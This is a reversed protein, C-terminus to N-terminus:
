DYAALADPDPICIKRGDLKVLEERELQSLVRSLTEPQISLQSAVLRKTAPLEFQFAACSKCSRLAQGLLYRIIRHSSKKFSLIEITELSNQELGSLQSLLALTLGTNESALSRYLSHPVQLLTCDTVTQASYAHCAEISFLMDEGFNEGPSIVHFVKDQGDQTLRYIKVSGDLVFFLYRAIDGQEFIKTNKGLVLQESNKLLTHLQAPALTRLLPNDQLPGQESIPIM